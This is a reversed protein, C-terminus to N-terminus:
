LTPSGGSLLPSGAQGSRLRARREEATPQNGTKAKRTVRIRLATSRMRSSLRREGTALGWELVQLLRATVAQRDKRQTRRRVPRRGLM